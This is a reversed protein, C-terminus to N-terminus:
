KYIKHTIKNTELTFVLDYEGLYHAKGIKECLEVTEPKSKERSVTFVFDTAKSIGILYPPYNEAGHHTLKLVNCRFHEEGYYRIMSNLMEDTPRQDGTILVTNEGYAIKIWLSNGNLVGNTIGKDRDEYSPPVTNVLHRIGERDSQREESWDFPATYITINLNENETKVSHIKGYPLYGIEQKLIEGIAALDNEDKVLHRIAGPVNNSLYSREPAIIYQVCFHSDKVIEPLAGIHDSHAHSVIIKFELRANKDCDPANELWKERLSLLFRHMGDDSTDGSDIVFVEGNCIVCFGDSKREGVRKFYLYVRDDRPAFSNVCIYEKEL